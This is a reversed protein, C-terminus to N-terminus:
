FLSSSAGITIRKPIVRDQDPISGLIKRVRPWCEVVEVQLNFGRNQVCGYKNYYFSMIRNAIIELGM